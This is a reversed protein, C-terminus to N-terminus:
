PAARKTFHPEGALAAYAGAIGIAGSQLDAVKSAGICSEDTGFAYTAMYGAFCEYSEQVGALGTVLGEQDAFTFLMSGDLNPVWAASNVPLGGETTRYRGGEDYHEFGFGIPDWLRHCGACATGGDAPAHLEEYRERTTVKGLM